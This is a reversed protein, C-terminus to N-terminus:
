EGDTDEGEPADVGWTRSFRGRFADPVEKARPHVELEVACENQTRLNLLIGRAEVILRGKEALADARNEYNQSVFSFRHQEIGYQRISCVTLETNGVRVGYNYSSVLGNVTKYSLCIGFYNQRTATCYIRYVKWAKKPKSTVPVQVPAPVVVLATSTSLKNKSSM